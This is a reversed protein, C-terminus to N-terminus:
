RQVYDKSTDICHKAIQLESAIYGMHELDVLRRKAIEKIIKDPDKGRFETCMKHSNDVFGCCIIEKEVKVLFYGNKDQTWPFELSDTNVIEREESIDIPHFPCKNEKMTLPTFNGM